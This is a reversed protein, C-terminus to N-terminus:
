VFSAFDNGQPIEGIGVDDIPWLDTSIYSNDKGNGNYDFGVAEAISSPNLILGNFNSNEMLFDEFDPTYNTSSSPTGSHQTSPQLPDAVQATGSKNIYSDVSSASEGAAPTSYADPLIAPPLATSSLYQSQHQQKIDPLTPVPFASSFTPRPLTPASNRVETDPDSIKRRKPDPEYRVVSTRHIDNSTYTIPQYARLPPLATVKLSTSEASNISIMSSSVSRDGMAKRSFSGLADQYVPCRKLSEVNASLILSPVNKIFANMGSSVGLDHIRPLNVSSSSKSHEKQNPTKLLTIFFGISKTMRGVYAYKSILFKTLKHFLCMRGMLISALQDNSDLIIPTAINDQLEASKEKKISNKDDGSIEEDSSSSTVNGIIPIDGAGALPGCKARLVLCVMYQLARHAIDLCVPTLLVEMYNFISVYGEKIKSTTNFFLLANCYGDMAYNMAEQAYNAALLRNGPDDNGLPEYHTFLIYNLLFLLMRLTIHKSFFMAMTAMDQPLGPKEENVGGRSSHLIADLTPLTYIDEESQDVLGETTFLLGKNSLANLADNINGDGESLRKLILIFSDLTSKRLTKAMSVNLLHNLVSIICLDIQFFLTFNKVVVLEKLDNVYDIKSSSPLKTDSFDKLNRLLRPAGLSLSQQVDLSVIFFWIKRWTHKLRETNVMAEKNFRRSLLNSNLQPFNDPDRHLGCSFAMQVISSLLVQHTENDNASIIQTSQINDQVAEPFCMLLIKYFIAFQVTALNVNTNSFSSLEDFHILDRRVLTIADAVPEFDILRPEDNITAPLSINFKSAVLQQCQPGLEVTCANSPLSLWTMRLIIVLIGLTSSDSFKSLKIALKDDEEDGFIQCIERRFCQEDLIPIVPYIYKFFCDLFKTIVSKPPLLAALKHLVEKQNMQIKMDISKLEEKRPTVSALSDHMVPCKAAINHFPPLSAQNLSPNMGAGAPCGMKPLSTTYTNGHAVPCRGSSNSMGKNQAKKRKQAYWELMRDRVTFVHGWLLRLYPDGKMIALWHTAGLHVTGNSKLHLMDFQRTLDLEDNDYVGEGNEESLKPSQQGLAAYTEYPSQTSRTDRKSNTKSLCEELYKVRERLQKLESDRSMEKELEEAWSQGMYHCLHAVGTKSCQMCNPRTKDCKVKRKRCITCSLPVRNRKRKGSSDRSLM